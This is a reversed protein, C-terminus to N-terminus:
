AVEPVFAYEKVRSDQFNMCPQVQRPTHTTKGTLHVYLTLLDEKNTM